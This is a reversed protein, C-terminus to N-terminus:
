VFISANVKEIEPGGAQVMAYSIRSARKLNPPPGAIVNVVADVQLAFL